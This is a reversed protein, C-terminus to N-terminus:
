RKNLKQEYFDDCRRDAEDIFAAVEPPLKRDEVTYPIEEYSM